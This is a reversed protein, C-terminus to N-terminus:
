CLVCYSNDISLSLEFKSFLLNILYKITLKTLLSNILNKIALKTLFRYVRLFVQNFFKHFSTFSTIIKPLSSEIVKM